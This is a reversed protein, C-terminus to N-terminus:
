LGPFATLYLLMIGHRQYGIHNLLDALRHRLPHLNIDRDKIFRDVGLFDKTLTICKVCRIMDVLQGLVSNRSRISTSHRFSIECARSIGQSLTYLQIDM